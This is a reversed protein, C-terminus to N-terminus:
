IAVPVIKCSGKIKQIDAMTLLKRQALSAAIKEFFDQNLSLVEKAKRYYKEIEASVVREQEYLSQQSNEFRSQHLYLGNICTNVVLNRTMDFAQDIDWKDGTDSIGYKQDLAAVGGLTSIIRSKQWYLPAKSEDNWYSTFGEHDGSRNRVFTLTVSEPCLAESIVAHGAEHYVLQAMVSNPDSLFSIDSSKLGTEVDPSVHFILRLCAKMFHEMTITEMRECGAYLGAENIVTELEACSRVDMIRAIMKPDAEDTFHKSKLYHAIINVADQGRPAEVEIMRDFRGARRLSRPLTRINNATALVFVQKRKAEDICSQVTVYEDTDPHGEDSNAFKDMDDLFVISPANRMAEEFTEKIKNVFLGDPSDKRCCFVRRGSDEIVASAMLSKGVGPEGYLLLGRPASVGLKDYSERSKLTDSIQRLENKISAYGIIKDFANM